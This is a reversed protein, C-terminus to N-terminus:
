LRSQVAERLLDLDVGTVKQYHSRIAIIKEGLREKGENARECEISTCSEDVTIFNETFDPDFLYFAVTEAFDENPSSSAYPSVFGRELAEQELLNFWSGPSTYGDSSITEFANPLKFNQHVSHAFEHYVTQLQLTRWEDDEPDISNVNTFTIRAGADATGLTVTGDGNYILGGLFIIEAPVFKRFFSGGNPVEFYPDIWFHEIFDLMPRVSELSPPAVRQSPDVYHDVFRYRIAMNYEQVFNQDIYIDLDSTPLNGSDKEPSNLSEEPYCGSVIVLAMCVCLSLLHKFLQKKWVIYKTKKM